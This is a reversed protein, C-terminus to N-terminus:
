AARQLRRNLEYGRAEFSTSRDTVHFGTTAAGVSCSSFTKFGGYIMRKADFPMDPMNPNLQPDVMVKAVIADRQERDEYVIWSFVVIEDDNV